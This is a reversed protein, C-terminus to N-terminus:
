QNPAPNSKSRKREEGLFFSEVTYTGVCVKGVFREVIVHTKNNYLREIEMNNCRERM